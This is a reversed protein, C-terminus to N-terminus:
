RRGRGLPPRGPGPRGPGPGPKEEDDDDEDRKPSPREDEEEDPKGPLVGGPKDPEDPKGPLGSGPKGEPLDHGPKPRRRRAEEEEPTVLVYEGPRRSISLLFSGVEDPVEGEFFGGEVPEFVLPDSHMEPNVGVEQHITRLKM